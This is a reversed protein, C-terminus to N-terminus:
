RRCTEQCDRECKKSPGSLNVSTLGFGATSPCNIIADKAKTLNRGPNATVRTPLDVVLQNGLNCPRWYIVQVAAGSRPPSRHVGRFLWTSLPLTNTAHARQQPWWQFYHGASCRTQRGPVGVFFGSRSFIWKAIKNINVLLASFTKLLGVSTDLM